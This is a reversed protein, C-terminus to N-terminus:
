QCQKDEELYDDCDITSRLGHKKCLGHMNSSITALPQVKGCVKYHTCLTCDIHTVFDEQHTQVFKDKM